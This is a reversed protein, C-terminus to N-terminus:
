GKSETRAHERPCFGYLMRSDRLYGGIWTMVLFGTPVIPHMPAIHQNAQMYLWDAWAKEMPKDCEKEFLDALAKIARSSGIKALQAAADRRIAENGQQLAEILLTEHM